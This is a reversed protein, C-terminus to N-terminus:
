QRDDQRAMSESGGKKVTIIVFAPQCPLPSFNKSVKLAELALQCTNLTVQGALAAELSDVVVKFTAALKFNQLLHNLVETWVLINRVRHTRAALQKTANEDVDEVVDFMTKILCAVVLLLQALATALNAEKWLFAGLVLVKTSQQLLNEISGNFLTFVHQNRQQLDLDQTRSLLFIEFSFFFYRRSNVPQSRDDISRGRKQGEKGGGGGTGM